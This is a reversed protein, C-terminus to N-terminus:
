CTEELYQKLKKPKIDFLKAIQDHTLGVKIMTGYLIKGEATLNGSSTKTNLVLTNLIEVREELAKVQLVLNSPRMDNEVRYVTDKSM